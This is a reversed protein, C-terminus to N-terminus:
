SGTAPREYVRFERTLSRHVRDAVRTALKWPPGVPDPGGPLIVVLRGGPRVREAWRPLVRAVLDAPPEGASGSARGYPPDTLVADWAGGGPPDFAEAADAVALREPEVGFAALNRLAGRVMADSRDVGSVRAGLLGAELLLAGTGLFPDVVRDGPRVAALNAAARALPPALSVPRQFPMKPMRRARLEGAGARGAEEAFWLAGSPRAAVVFRRAPHELDIRGGGARYAGALDDITPDREGGRPSGLTRFSAARGDSAAGALRRRVEAIGTEPWVELVRRTLALRRAVTAGDVGSPVELLPLAEPADTEPPGVSGGVARAVGELEARALEPNAGSLEAAFRTM